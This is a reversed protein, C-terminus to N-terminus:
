IKKRLSQFIDRLIEKKSNEKIIDDLNLGDLKEM